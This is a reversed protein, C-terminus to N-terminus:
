IFITREIACDAAAAAASASASSLCLIARTRWACAIREGAMALSWTSSLTIAHPSPTHDCRFLHNSRAILSGQRAPAARQALSQNEEMMIMRIVMVMPAPPTLVPTSLALVLTLPRRRPMKVFLLQRVTVNAYM